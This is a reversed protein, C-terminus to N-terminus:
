ERVQMKVSLPEWIGRVNMDVIDGTEGDIGWACPGAAAGSGGHSAHKARLSTLTRITNAGCNQALTRPIIETFWLKSNYFACNSSWIYVM